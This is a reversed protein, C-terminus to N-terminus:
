LKDYLEKVKVRQQEEKKNIENQIIIEAKHFLSHTSDFYYIEYEVSDEVLIVNGQSDIIKQSKFDIAQNLYKEQLISQVEQQNPVPLHPFTYKYLFLKEESFHFECKVRFGGILMKYFFISTKLPLGQKFNIIPKGLIKKVEQETNGFHPRSASSMIKDTRISNKQTSKKCLEIYTKPNKYSEAIREYHFYRSPYYNRNQLYTDKILLRSM